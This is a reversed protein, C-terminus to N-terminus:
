PANRVLPPLGGPAGLACAVGRQVASDRCARAADDGASGAVQQCSQEDYAAIRSCAEPTRSRMDDQTPRAVREASLELEAIEPAPIEPEAPPSSKNPQAPRRLGPTSAASRPPSPTAVSKPVALVAVLDAASPAIFRWEQYSTSGQASFGAVVSNRPYPKRESLSHVGVIGGDPLRMLGWQVDGTMPDVYLRRLHRQPTIARDDRLLDELRRPYPQASDPSQARYHEIAAAFQRGIFVLEREDDRQKAIRWVASAAVATMAMVSILFLVGLYTFGRSRAGRSTLRTAEFASAAGPPM